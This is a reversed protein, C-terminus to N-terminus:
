LINDNLVKEYVNKTKEAIKDWLFEKKIHLSLHGTKPKNLSRSITNLMSKKQNPNCYDALNIFYEKTGGYPTIVVNAGALGAELAARGPTEYLSPLVFTDCAAYASALLPNNHNLWDIHIIKSNREIINMCKRGEANNLLNGIIVSPHDISELVKLLKYTNKRKAGIHGVHLIFNKINYKKEFLDPNSDIFRKEVGNHITILKNRSIGLGEAILNEEEVTNPLVLKANECIKKAISIESMTGNLFKNTIQQAFLYTKITPSFHKSFFIPNVISKSGFLKLSESLHYTGSNATFIHVIEDDKIQLQPEWYNLMEVETGQEKLSKQLCLIKYTPGGRM